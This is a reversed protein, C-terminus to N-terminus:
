EICVEILADNLWSKECIFYGLRNVHHFGNVIYTEDEDSGEIWTWIKNYSQQKVYELEQGFTEFMDGCRSANLEIHNKIPRYFVEWESETM